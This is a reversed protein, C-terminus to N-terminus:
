IGEKCLERQLSQVIAKLATIEKEKKKEKEIEKEIQIIDEM